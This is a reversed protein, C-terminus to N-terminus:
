ITNKSDKGKTNDIDHAHCQRECLILLINEISQISCAFVAPFENSSEVKADFTLKHICFVM